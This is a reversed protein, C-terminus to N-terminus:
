FMATGGTTTGRSGHQGQLSTAILSAERAATVEEIGGCCSFRQLPHSTSFTFCDKVKKPNIWFGKNTDEYAM